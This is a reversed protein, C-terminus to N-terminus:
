KAFNNLNTAMQGSDGNNVGILTSLKQFTVTTGSITFSLGIGNLDTSGDGLLFATETASYAVGRMNVYTGNNYTTIATGLTPASSGSFTVVRTSTGTTSNSGYSTVSPAARMPKIYPVNIQCTTANVWCGIGQKVAQCYRYCLDLEAGYLRREFPTAVSGAELQVGTVRTEAAALNNRIIRFEMGNTVNSPLM